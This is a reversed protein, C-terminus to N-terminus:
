VFFSRIGTIRKNKKHGASDTYEVDLYIFPLDELFAEVERIQNNDFQEIFDLLDKKTSESALYVNEGEWIMDILSIFLELGDEITVVGDERRGLAVMEQFTPYKLVIGIDKVPDLLIKNSKSSEHVKAEDLNVVVDIDVDHEDKIKLEVKNSVSKARLCLFFYEIDYSAMKDVDVPDLCCNNILQKFVNVYDDTDGSQQAVLLLKEEKVTFPRFRIQKKTSPLTLTFTPQTIVPLAM